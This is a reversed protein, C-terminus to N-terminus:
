LHCWNTHHSNSYACLRVCEFARVSLPKPKTKFTAPNIFSSSLIEVSSETCFVETEIHRAYLVTKDDNLERNTPATNRHCVNFCGSIRIYMQQSCGECVEQIGQM